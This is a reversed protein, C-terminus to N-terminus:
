FRVVNGELAIEDVPLDKAGQDLSDLTAVLTSDTRSIKLVLRLKLGQVALEGLWNGAIGRAVPAQAAMAVPLPLARASPAAACALLVSTAAIRRNMKM